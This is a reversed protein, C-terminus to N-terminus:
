KINDYGNVNNFHRTCIMIAVIVITASKQQLALFKLKREVFSDVLDDM